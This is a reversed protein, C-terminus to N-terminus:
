YNVPRSEVCFQYDHQLDKIRLNHGHVHEGPGIGSSAFGIVQGYKKVAEGEKLETLAIKHGAQINTRARVRISGNILEDDALVPRKLVAVSDQPHLLIAVTGFEKQAM